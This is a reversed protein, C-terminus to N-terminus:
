LSELIYDAWIKHGIALPHQKRYYAAQKLELARLNGIILVQNMWELFDTRSLSSCLDLVNELRAVSSWSMAYCPQSHKYGSQQAILEVWSKSLLQPGALDMGISEVFNTGIRLVINNVTEVAKCIRKTCEYNLFELLKWYDSHTKINDSLWSVYDIYRDYECDFERGIETFTCVLYITKYKLQPAIKVLNEVQTAIFFNGAGRQAINLFDASLNDAVLKGYVNAIRFDEDYDDVTLDAGWTWSEGITVVLRDSDNNIFTAGGPVGNYHDPIPFYENLSEQMLKM